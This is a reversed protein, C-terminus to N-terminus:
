IDTKDTEFRDQRDGTQGRDTKQRDGTQGRDTWQRDETQGRDRRHTM